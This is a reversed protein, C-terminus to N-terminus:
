WMSYFYASSRYFRPNVDPWTSIRFVILNKVVKEQALVCAFPEQVGKAGPTLWLVEALNRNLVQTTQDKRVLWISVLLPPPCGFFSFIGFLPNWFTNVLMDTWMPPSALWHSYLEDETWRSIHSRNFNLPWDHFLLMGISVVLNESALVELSFRLFFVFYGLLVTFHRLSTTFVVTGANPRMDILAELCGHRLFLRQPWIAGLILILPKLNWGHAM